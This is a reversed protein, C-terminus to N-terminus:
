HPNKNMQNNCYWVSCHTKPYSASIIKFNEYLLSRFSNHTLVGIISYKTFIEELKTKKGGLLIISMNEASM